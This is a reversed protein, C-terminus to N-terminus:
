VSIGSTPAIHIHIREKGSKPMLPPGSWTIKPGTGDSAQIATEEDQDWVL